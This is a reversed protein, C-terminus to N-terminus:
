VRRACAGIADLEATKEPSSRHRLPPLGSEDIALDQGSKPKRVVVRFLRRRRRRRGRRVPRLLPLSGRPALAKKRGKQQWRGWQHAGPVDEGSDLQGQCHGHYDSTRCRGYRSPLRPPVRNLRATQRERTVLIQKADGIQHHINADHPAFNPAAMFFKCCWFTKRVYSKLKYSCRWRGAWLSGLLSKPAPRIKPSVGACGLFLRCTKSGLLIVLLGL